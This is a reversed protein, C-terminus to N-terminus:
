CILDSIYAPGLSNPTTDNHKQTHTVVTAALNQTSQVQSVVSSFRM